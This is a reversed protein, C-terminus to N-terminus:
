DGTRQAMAPASSPAAASMQRLIPRVAFSGPLGFLLVLVRCAFVGVVAAAFSAGSAWISLPLVLALLGVGALVALYAALLLSLWRTSARAAM